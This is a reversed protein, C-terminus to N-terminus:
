RKSKKKWWWRIKIRLYRKEIWMKLQPLYQFVRFSYWNLTIAIYAFHLLFFFLIEVLSLFFLQSNFNFSNKLYMHEVVVCYTSVCVCAWMTVIRFWIFEIWWTKLAYWFCSRLWFSNDLLRFSFIFESLHHFLIERKLLSFREFIMEIKM